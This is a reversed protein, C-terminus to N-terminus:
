AAECGNITELLDAPLQRRYKTVIRKGLAAQRPSLFPAEALSHGIRVDIKSFGMGNRSQAFDVDFGALVRLGQHIAEVQAPTLHVAEEEVQKRSTRETASEAGPIVVLKEMEVRAPHHKDLAADIVNQKNVLTQAMKADLSGELVLHQVLVTDTQGLRHCNHVVATGLVFSEREQVTLDYVPGQYHFTKVEKVFLGRPRKGPTWEVSWDGRKDLAVCPTEGLQAATNAVWSALASSRSSFRQRMRRVSGDGCLLGRLVVEKQEISLNNVFDPMKKNSAGHGFASRFWRAWDSSYAFLEVMNGREIWKSNVGIRELTEKCRALAVAKRGNSAGSLCIYHGNGDSRVKASGDAAYYGLLFLWDETLSVYQPARKLRGKRKGSSTFEPTRMEQPFEWRDLQVGSWGHPTAIRDGRKLCGAEQWEGNSLLVRHDVTLRLPLRWGYVAVEVAEGDYHKSWVDTVSTAQGGSNVVADGNAVSEVTKWGSPTMVLQGPLVCRDEAQTVLGPTWDLEAFVVHSAATLTHGVGAAGITGIFLQCCPDSQFREVAAQREEIKAIGGHIIAAGPFEASIAEVMDRHHCFLVVKGSSEIADRLHEVVHPVKALAVDHRCKSIEDFAVAAAKTLAKVAEEFVTPDDSAKALEVRARLDALADEHLQWIRGEAAIAQTAGNAPMEIIQRRKPPLETLVQSKTRRVMISTRLKEQLEDLNSSGSFDWGFRGQHGNCYRTAFSFFSKGLGDPDLSSVLPWLELPRNCIPTGTMFVRRRAAIPSIAPIVKPEGGKKDKKKKEKRGIVQQTRIADPNKLAHAEDVILLDWSRARIADHHKALIDFNIAVIDTDPFTGNAIGITAPRVLWKTLEKKWNLKLSAPCIVLVSRISDDANIVGIGQITKGLGMDDGILTGPRSLAYSIGARQYPLYSLGDPAPFEADSAAARSAALAETKADAVGALEARCSDDAFQVLKAARERDNTWWRKEKPDWRFGAAKVADKEAYNSEVAWINGDAFLKM